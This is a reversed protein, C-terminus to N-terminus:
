NGAIASDKSRWILDSTDYGKRNAEALLHRLTAAPLSTQRALLWLHDRDRNGVLATQYDEDVYLVQYDGRMGPILRAAWNDFRVWFANSSGPTQPTATGTVQKWSGDATRCRNLLGISGDARVHYHAESQLCARQFFMPKRALEYWTGAYRQPDVQMTHPREGAHGASGGLALLAVLVRLAANM